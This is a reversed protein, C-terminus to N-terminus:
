VRPPLVSIVLFHCSSKKGSYSFYTLLWQCSGSNSNCEAAFVDPFCDPRLICKKYSEHTCLITKKKHTHMCICVCVQSSYYYHGTKAYMCNLYCFQFHICHIHKFPTKIFRYRTDIVKVNRICLNNELNHKSNFVVPVWSTLACCLQQYFGWTAMSM